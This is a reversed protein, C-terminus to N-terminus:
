LRVLQANLHQIVVQLAGLVDLMVIKACLMELLLIINAQVHHLVLLDKWTLIALQLEQAQANLIPEELVDLLVNVM